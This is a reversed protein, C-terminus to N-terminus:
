IRVGIVCVDDIQELEGRWNEFASDILEKQEEMSKDQISLLLTRFTKAKFKKGKEGGFQDVYGDSFIYISDGKQLEFSHTTYPELKEFQGIPQKNAKTEILENGRIIWLPNHAGSYKLTNGEISCLAIDMGDKVEDESKEFEEIVIKRTKDLIEGPTTHGYERVSRNLANNCVVSVMAGPVGHGTCDAAAFLVINKVSEMWYFDGAVIDKPKYLIFSDKLYEKVVKNPPLIATQIRKAYNISDKIENHAEEVENKQQEIIVKQKQTIRYRNYMFGSFFIVLIMGGFLAYQQNRKANLETKQKLIELDKIEQEKVHSISDTLIQKQFQYKAQLESIIKLSNMSFLSDKMKISLNKMNLAKEYSKQKLFIGYLLSSARQIRNINKLEKAYVLAQYCKEEAANLDGKEFDIRAIHILATLMRKKENIKTSITLANNFCELAKAINGLNKYTDGMNNYSSAMSLEDNDEIDIALSKKLYPLAKEPAGLNNYCFGLNLYYAAGINFKVTDLIPIAKSYYELGKEFNQIDTFFSGVKAYAALLLQPDQLEELVALANLKYDLEIPKKGLQRYVSGISGLFESEDQKFNNKQAFEVAKQYQNIADQYENKKFHYDGLSSHINHKLKYNIKDAYLLANKAHYIALDLDDERYTDAINLYASVTNSDISHDNSDLYKLISDVKIQNEKTTSAQCYSVFLLFIIVLNKL